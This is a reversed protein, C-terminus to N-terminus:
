GNSSQEDVGRLVQQVREFSLISPLKGLHVCIPQRGDRPFQHLRHQGDFDVVMSFRDVTGQQYRCFQNVRSFNERTFLTAAHSIFRLGIELQTELGVFDSLVTELVADDGDLNLKQLKELAGKAKALRRPAMVSAFKLADIGPIPQHRLSLHSTERGVRCVAELAAEEFDLLTKPLYRLVSPARAKAQAIAQRLSAQQMRKGLDHSLALARDSGFFRSACIDGCLAIRGDEMKVTYGHKHPTHKACFACPVDFAALYENLYAVPATGAEIVASLGAQLDPRSIILGTDDNIALTGAFGKRVTRM